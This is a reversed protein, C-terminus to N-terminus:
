DSCCFDEVLVAYKLPGIAECISDGVTSWASLHMHRHPTNM